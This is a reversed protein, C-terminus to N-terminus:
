NQVFQYTFLSDRPNTIIGVCYYHLRIAKSIRLNECTVGFEEHIKRLTSNLSLMPKNGNPSLDDTKDGDYPGLLGQTKNQYTTPLSVAIVSVFGNQEKTQIFVGSSFTARLTKNGSDTVTVNDLDQSKLEDFNIRKGDILAIIATNNNARQIEFQVINSNEEKAVCASFVTGKAAEGMLTKADVMRGQLTFSQDNTEILVFESKGNFTYKHQDLTM